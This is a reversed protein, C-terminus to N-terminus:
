IVNCVKFFYFENQYFYCKKLNAFFSYKQLQDLVWHINENYPQGLDKMYILIDSLYVIIIIDLKEAM